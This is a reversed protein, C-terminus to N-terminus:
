AVELACLELERGSLIDGAPTDCVACCLWQPSRVPQDCDCVACRIVIPVEEIVLRAAAFPTQEVALSYASQLADPVVGSLQGVRIHIAEVDGCRREDVAEQVAELLSLAISLEHM